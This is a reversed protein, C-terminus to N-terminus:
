IFLAYALWYALVAVVALASLLAMLLLLPALRGGGRAGARRARALAGVGLVGFLAAVRRRRSAPGSAAFALADDIAFPLVDRAAPLPAPGSPRRLAARLLYDDFQFGTLVAPLTLAMALLGLLWPQALRGLWRAGTNM